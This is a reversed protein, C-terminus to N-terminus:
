VAWYLPVFVVLIPSLHDAFTNWATLTSTAGHGHAMKWVVQDFVALDYTTFRFTVYRYLQLAFMGAVVAAALWRDLRHRSFYKATM